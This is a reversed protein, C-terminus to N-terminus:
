RAPAPHHRRRGIAARKVAWQQGWKHRNYRQRSQSYHRMHHCSHRIHHPAKCQAQQWVTSPYTATFCGAQPLPIRSVNRQWAAWNGSQVPTTSSATTGITTRQTSGTGVVVDVHPPASSMLSSNVATASSMTSGPATGGNFVVALVLIVSILIAGALVKKVHKRRDKPPQV